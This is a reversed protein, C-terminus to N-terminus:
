DGKCVLLSLSSGPGFAAVPVPLLFFLLALVFSGIVAALKAHFPQLQRKLLTAFTGGNKVNSKTPVL